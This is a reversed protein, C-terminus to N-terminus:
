RTMLIASEVVVYLSDRMAAIEVIQHEPIDKLLVIQDARRLVNELSQKYNRVHLHGSVRL